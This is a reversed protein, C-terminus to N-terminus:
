VITPEENYAATVISVPPPLPSTAPADLGPLRRRRARRPAPRGPRARRVGSVPTLVWSSGTM